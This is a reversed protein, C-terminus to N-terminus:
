PFAEFARAEEAVVLFARRRSIARFSALALGDARKLAARLEIRIVVFEATERGSITGSCQSATRAVTAHADRL